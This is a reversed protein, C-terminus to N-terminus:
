HIYLPFKLQYYYNLNILAGTRYTIRKFYLLYVRMHILVEENNYQVCVGKHFSILQRTVINKINFVCMHTLYM